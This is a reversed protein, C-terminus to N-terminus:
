FLKVLTIIKEWLYEINKKHNFKFDIENLGYYHFKRNQWIIYKYRIDLQSLIMDLLLLTPVSLIIINYGIEKDKM